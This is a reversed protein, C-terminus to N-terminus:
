GIEMTEMERRYPKGDYPYSADHINKCFSCPVTAKGYYSLRGIMDINYASGIPHLM